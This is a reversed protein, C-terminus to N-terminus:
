SSPRPNLHRDLFDILRQEYVKPAFLAPSEHGMGEVIWQEKPGRASQFLRRHHELPFLDDATGHILLVSRPAFGALDRASDVQSIDVGVEREAWKVVLPAFPWAPLLSLKGFADNVAAPLSSYTSEIVMAQPIDSGAAARIAAAAGM